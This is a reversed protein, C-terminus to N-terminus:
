NKPVEDDAEQEFMMPDACIQQILAEEQERVKRTDIDLSEFVSCMGKFLFTLASKSVDADRKIVDFPLFVSYEVDKTKKFVTPGKIDNDGIARKASVNFTLAFDRGYEKVFRTSPKVLGTVAESLRSQFHHSFPFAAGPEIYIQGFYVDM